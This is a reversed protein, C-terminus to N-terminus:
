FANKVNLSVDDHSKQVRTKEEYLKKWDKKHKGTVIKFKTLYERLYQIIFHNGRHMICQGTAVQRHIM